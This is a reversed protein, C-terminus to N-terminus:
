PVGVLTITDNAADLTATPATTGFDKLIINDKQRVGYAWQIVYDNASASTGADFRQNVEDFVGRVISVGNSSPGTQYTTSVTTFATIVGDWVKIIDGLQAETIVDMGATSPGGGYGGTATQSAATYVVMDTAGDATGLAIMDGGTGGTITDAGAGGNITDAGAGGVIVDAGEDGFVVDAGDGADITDAGGGGLIFDVRTGATSADMTDNGPTGLFVYQSTAASTNGNASLTLFGQKATVQPVLTTNGSTFSGISGSVSANVQGAQNLQVVFGAATATVSITPLPPGPVLAILEPMTLPGLSEYTTGTSWDPRYSLDLRDYIQRYTIEAQAGVYGSNTLHDANRQLYSKNQYMAKLAAESAVLPDASAMIAAWNREDTGAGINGYLSYMARKILADTYTLHGSATLLDAISPKNM